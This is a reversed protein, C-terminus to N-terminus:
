PPTEGDHDPRSDPSRPFFLWELLQFPTLVVWCLVVGIIAPWLLGMGVAMGVAATLWIAAATTLGLVRRGEGLKLITGAGLFGVGTAIGQIVSRLDTVEMGAEVPAATFVAAGLAVLMHTRLGSDKRRWERDIGIVAGLLAAVSLRVLLRFVQGTDPLGVFWTDNLAPM